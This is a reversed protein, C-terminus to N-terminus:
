GDGFLMTVLKEPELRFPSGRGEFFGHADILHVNLDSWTLHEGDDSRVTTTRKLCRIQHPWPCPIVGRSDDCQVQLRADVRVWEGLGKQGIATLERMRAAIAKPSWGLRHVEAADEQIIDWVDRPDTGLFGCASIKSAALMTELKKDQPTKKM